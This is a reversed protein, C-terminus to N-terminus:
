GIRGSNLKSSRVAKKGGDPKGTVCKILRSHYNEEVVDKGKGGKRIEVERAKYRTCGGGCTKRHGGEGGGRKV